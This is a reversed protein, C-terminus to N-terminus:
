SGLELDYLFVAGWYFTDSGQPGPTLYGPCTILLRGNEWDASVSDGFLNFRQPRGPVLAYENAFDRVLTWGNGTDRYYLFARGPRNYPPDATYGPDASRAGVLMWDGQMVIDWGFEPSDSPNLGPGQVILTQELVWNGPTSERYVRIFDTPSSSLADERLSGIAIRDGDMALSHGWWQEGSWFDPYQPVQFEAGVSWGSAGREYLRVTAQDSETSVLIRDGAVYVRRGFQVEYGGSQALSPPALLADFAFTDNAQREYVYALGYRDNGAPWQGMAGVVLRHGDFSLASAYHSSVWNPSALPSVPFDIPRLAQKYTWQVGDFAYVYVRGNGGLIRGHDSYTAASVCVMQDKVVFRAGFSDLSGWYSYEPDPSRIDQFYAWGDDSRRFVKLIFGSTQPEGEWTVVTSLFLWDGDIARTSSQNQGVASFVGPEAPLELFALTETVATQGRAALTLCGLAAVLLGFTRFAHNKM